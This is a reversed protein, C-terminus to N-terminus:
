KVDKRKDSEQAVRARLWGIVTSEALKFAQGGSLKAIVDDKFDQYYAVAIADDNIADALIALALQAPGSGAYGWAFGTPSHNRLDRRADLTRYTAPADPTSDLVTMVAVNGRVTDIIPGSPSGVYFKM